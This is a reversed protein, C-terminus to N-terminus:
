GPSTASATNEARPASGTTDYTTWDSASNSGAM